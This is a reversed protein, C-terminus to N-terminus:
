AYSTERNQSGLASVINARVTSLLRKDVIVGGEETFAAVAAKFAAVGVAEFGEVVVSAQIVATALPRPRDVRGTGVSLM